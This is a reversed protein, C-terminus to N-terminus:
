FSLQWPLRILGTMAVAHVAAKGPTHGLPLSFAAFRTFHKRSAKQFSSVEGFQRYILVAVPFVLNDFSNERV